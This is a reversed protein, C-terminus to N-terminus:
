ARAVKLVSVSWAPLELVVKGGGLEVAKEQVGVRRPEAFSNLDSSSAGTMWSLTGAAAAAGLQVTLSVGRTGYNILKAQIAGTTGVSVSAALMAPSADDGTDCSGGNPWATCSQLGTTTTTAGVTSQLRLTSPVLAAPQSHM